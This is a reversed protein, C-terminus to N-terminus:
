AGSSSISFIASRIAGAGRSRLGEARRSRVERRGRGVAEMRARTAGPQSRVSPLPSAPEGGQQAGGLPMARAPRKVEGEPPAITARPLPFPALNTAAFPSKSNKPELHHRLAVNELAVATSGGLFARLFTWLGIVLVM